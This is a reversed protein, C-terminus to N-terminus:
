KFYLIGTQYREYLQGSKLKTSPVVAHLRKVRHKFYTQVKKLM